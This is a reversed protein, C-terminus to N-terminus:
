RIDETEERQSAPTRRLIGRLLLLPTLSLVLVAVSAGLALATGGMKLLPWLVALAGAVLALCSGILVPWLLKLRRGGGSGRSSSIGPGDESSVASPASSGSRRKRPM